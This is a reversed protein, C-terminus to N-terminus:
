VTRKKSWHGPPDAGPTETDMNNLTRWFSQATLHSAYPILEKFCAMLSPFLKPDQNLGQLIQPVGGFRERLGDSRPVHRLLSTVVAIRLRRHIKGLGHRALNGDPNARSIQDILLYLASAEANASFLCKSAIQQWDLSLAEIVDLVTATM